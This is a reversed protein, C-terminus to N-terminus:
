VEEQTGRWEWCDIYTFEEKKCQPGNYKCIDCFSGDVSSAHYMDEIAADRERELQQNKQLLEDREHELQVIANLMLKGFTSKDCGEKFFSCFICNETDICCQIHRKVEEAHIEKNM